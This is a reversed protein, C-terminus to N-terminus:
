ISFNSFGKWSEPKGMTRLCLQSGGLPSPTGLESVKFPLDCDRTHVRNISPVEVEICLHLSHSLAIPSALGKGWSLKCAWVLLFPWVIGKQM